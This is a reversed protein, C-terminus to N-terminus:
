GEGKGEGKELSLSIALAFEGMFFFLKSLEKHKSSV